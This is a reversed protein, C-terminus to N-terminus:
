QQHTTTQLLSPPIPSLASQDTPNSFTPLHEWLHTPIHDTHLFDYSPPPNTSSSFPFVHEDFIVHRSLIIKRTHLDLCKYGRHNSPYGLFVCPSSRPQLKHITPSPSLPYCLCGFIHLHDYAPTTHYLLQHPSRNGKLKSPLINLLYTAM